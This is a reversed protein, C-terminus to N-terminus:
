LFQQHGRLRGSFLIEACSQMLSRGPPSGEHPM